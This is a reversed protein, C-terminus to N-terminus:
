SWRCSSSTPMTLKEGVNPHGAAVICVWRDTFLPQSPLDSLFGHPMVMADTDRLGQAADDVAPVTLPQLRLRVHPAPQLLAALPPRLVTLAYDSIM